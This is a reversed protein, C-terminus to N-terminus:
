KQPANLQGALAQRAAEFLSRAAARETDMLPRATVLLAQVRYGQTESTGAAPATGPPERWHGAEDLVGYWLVAHLMPARTLNVEVCPPTTNTASVLARRDTIEWGAALYGATPEVFGPMPGDLGLSLTVQSRQWHWTQAGPLGAVEAIAEAAGIARWGEALTAAPLMVEPRLGAVVVAPAVRAERHLWGLGVQLLGLGLAVGAFTWVLATPRASLGLVQRWPVAKAAEDAGLPLDSSRRRREVLFGILQDFSLLLLLYFLWVGVVVVDAGTTRFFDMRGTECREVGWAVRLVEGPLALCAVVALELGIRVPHRRWWLLWVLGVTLVAPLGHLGAFLDARPVVRSTLEFGDLRLLHPVQFTYLMQDAARLIFGQAAQLLTEGWGFPLPLITVLVVWAPAFLRVLPWGGNWGTAALLTLVAALAALGPLWLFTAVALVVLGLGLLAGWIRRDGPAALKAAPSRMARIALLAAGLLALGGGRCIPEEWRALAFAALLPWFGASLLLATLVNLGRPASDPTSNNEAM